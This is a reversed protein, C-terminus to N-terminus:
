FAIIAKHDSSSEFECISGSTRNWTGSNKCQQCFMSKDCSEAKAVMGNGM